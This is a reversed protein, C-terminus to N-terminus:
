REVVSEMKKFWLQRFAHENVAEAQLRVMEGEREKLHTFEAKGRRVEM